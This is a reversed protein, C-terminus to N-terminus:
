NYDFFYEIGSHVLILYEKTKFYNYPNYAWLALGEYLEPLHIKVLRDIKRKNARTAHKMRREWERLALGVCTANLTLRNVNDPTKM